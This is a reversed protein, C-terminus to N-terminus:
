YVLRLLITTCNSCGWLEQLVSTYSSLQSEAKSNNNHNTNTNANTKNTKLNDINRYTADKIEKIYNELMLFLLTCSVLDVQSVMGPDIHMLVKSVVHKQDMRYGKCACHLLARGHKDTM